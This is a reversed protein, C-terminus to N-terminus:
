FSAPHTAAQVRWIRAGRRPQTNAPRARRQGERLLCNGFPAPNNAFGEKEGVAFALAPPGLRFHDRARSQKARPSSASSIRCPRDERYSRTMCHSSGAIKGRVSVCQINAKRFFHRRPGSVHPSLAHIGPDGGTQVKMGLPREAYAFIAVRESSGKPPSHAFAFYAAIFPSRSWDLLPLPFGHHRLYLVYEYAPVEAELATTTMGRAFKRTSRRGYQTPRRPFEEPAQASWNRSKGSFRM